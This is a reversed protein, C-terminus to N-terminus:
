VSVNKREFSASRHFVLTRQASFSVLSLLTDVTVKVVFVNWRVRTTLTWILLYSLTAIGAALVYYRWITGSMSARNHFVFKRNLVFNALSSLRGVAV